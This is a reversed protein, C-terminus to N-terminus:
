GVPHLFKLPLWRKQPSLTCLSVEDILDIFAQADDGSVNRVRKGENDDSFVITILSVREDTTLTDSIM